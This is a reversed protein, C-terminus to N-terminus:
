GQHVWSVCGGWRLILLVEKIYFFLFMVPVWMLLNDWLRWRLYFKPLWMWL